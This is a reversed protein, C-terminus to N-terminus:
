PTRPLRKIWHAITPGPHGYEARAQVKRVNPPPQTVLSHAGVARKQPWYAVYVDVFQRYAGRKSASYRGVLVNKRVAVMFVTLQKDNGTAKLNEPLYRDAQSLRDGHIDWVLCKGRVAIEEDGLRMCQAILPRLQQVIEKQSQTGEEDSGGAAVWVAIAIVVVLVIAAKIKWM